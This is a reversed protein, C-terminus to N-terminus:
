QVSCYGKNNEDGTVRKTLFLLAASKYIMSSIHVGLM